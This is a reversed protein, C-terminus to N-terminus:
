WINEKASLQYQVYDQFVVSIRRRLDMLPVDKIDIGDLTIRGGSTDYLRCLLKVLTTKGSGNEGVFAIHEGQRITLSVEKLVPRTGAPYAFSVQDFIIDTQLKKPLLAPKALEKIDAQIDLFEHFDSLSLSDEYLDSMGKLVERMYAQARQFALYYMVLDGLTAVGFLTKYAIFAFAGFDAIASSTEIFMEAISRKKALAIHENRLLEMEGLFRRRFLTGLNFLRIEKAYKEKTLIESYYWCKRELSTRKYKLQYQKYAYNFYVLLSPILAVLLFLVLMWHFMALLVLMTLVSIGNQSVSELNIVVDFTRSAGEGQKKARHLKDYYQSNEYSSLDVEICKAHLIDYVHVSVLSIQIDHVLKSVSQLLAGMIAVAGALLILFAVYKIAKEDYAATSDITAATDVILKLLYLSFLPLVGQIVLLAFNVITWRPSSQWIHQIAIKLNVLRQKISSTMQQFTGSM